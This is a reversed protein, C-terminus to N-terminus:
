SVDTINATANIILKWKWANVKIKPSLIRFERSYESARLKRATSLGAGGGIAHYAADKKELEQDKYM